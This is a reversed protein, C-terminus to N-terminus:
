LRGAISHTSGGLPGRNSEGSIAIQGVGYTEHWLYNPSVGFRSNPGLPMENGVLSRPAKKTRWTVEISRRRHECRQSSVLDRYTSGRGNEHKPQRERKGWMPQAYPTKDPWM